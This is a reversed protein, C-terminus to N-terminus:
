IPHLVNFVVVQAQKRAIEIHCYQSQLSSVTACTALPFDQLTTDSVIVCCGVISIFIYQLSEFCGNEVVKASSPFNSTAVDM